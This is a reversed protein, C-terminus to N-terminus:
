TRRWADAIPGGASLGRVAQRPGGLLAGAGAAIPGRDPLCRVPEAVDAHAGPFLVQSPAAVPYTVSLDSQRWPSSRCLCVAIPIRNPLGRVRRDVLRDPRHLLWQSPDHGALCHATTVAPTGLRLATAAIPRPRFSWPLRSSISWRGRSSTGAISGPGSLGRISGRPGAQVDRIRHQSPAAASCAASLSSVTLSYPVCDREQSPATAPCVVSLPPWKISSGPARHGTIPGRGPLGPVSPPWTYSTTPRAEAIPGRSSLGRIAGGEADEGLVPFYRRLPRLRVLQPSFVEGMCRASHTWSQSPAAVTFVASLVDRLRARQSSVAAPCVASLGERVTVRPGRELEQFPATAPCAVSLRDSYSLTGTSDSRRHPRPRVPRPFLDSTAGMDVAERRPHPRPQVPRLCVLPTEAPRGRVPSLAPPQRPQDDRQSPAAVLCAAPLVKRHRHVRDPVHQSLATASCTASLQPPLPNGHQRLVQSPAAGLMGRVTPGGVGGGRTSSYRRHLRALQGRGAGMVPNVDHAEDWSRHLRLRTSRPIIPRHPCQHLLLYQQSPAAAPFGRVAGLHPDDDAVECPPSPAVAPCAVSMPRDRQRDAVGVGHRPAAVPCGASLSCRRGHVASSAGQSPVAAFWAAAVLPVADRLPAHLLQSPAAAPCTASSPMVMKPRGTMKVSSRHPRPRASRTYLLAALRRVRDYPVQSSAAAPFASSLAAVGDCHRLKQQQSPAPATCAASLDKRYTSLLREQLPAAAPCVVPLLRIETGAAKPTPRLHPRPWAPWPYVPLCSARAAVASSRHSRLRAPWPRFSSRRPFTWVPRGAISGRSPLGRVADPQQTRRVRVDDQSPSAALFATPLTLALPSSTTWRTTPIPGRGPLSRASACAEREGPLREHQSQAASPHSKVSSRVRSATPPISGGVAQCGASLRTWRRERAMRPSEAIPDRGPLGRVSPHDPRQRRLPRVQSPAAAPCALVSVRPDRFHSGRHVQSPVAAPSAM